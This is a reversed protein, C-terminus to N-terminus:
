QIELMASFPAINNLELRCLDDEPVPPEGSQLTHCPLHGALSRPSGPDRLFASILLM